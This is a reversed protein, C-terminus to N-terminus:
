SAWNQLGRAVSASDVPRSGAGVACLSVSSAHRVLTPWRTGCFGGRALEPGEPLQGPRDHDWPELQDDFTLAVTRRQSRHHEFAVDQADSRMRAVVQHELIRADRAKMAPEASGVGAPRHDV